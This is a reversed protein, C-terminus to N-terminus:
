LCSFVDAEPFLRTLKTRGPEYGIDSYFVRTIGEKGFLWLGGPAAPAEGRVYQANAGGEKLARHRERIWDLSYGVWAFVPCLLTVAILLTRLYFRLM